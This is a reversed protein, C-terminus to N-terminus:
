EVGRNVRLAGPLANNNDEDGIAPISPGSVPAPPLSPVDGDGDSWGPERFFLTTTVEGFTVSLAPDGTFSVIADEAFDELWTILDIVYMCGTM